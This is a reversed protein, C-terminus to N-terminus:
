YNSSDSNNTAGTLQIFRSKAQDFRTGTNIYEQKKQALQANLANIHRANDQYEGYLEGSTPIRNGSERLIDAHTALLPELRSKIGNIVLQILALNHARALDIEEPSTYTGLLANDYRQQTIKAELAKKAELSQATQAAREKDTLAAAKQGVVLGHKDITTTAYGADKAPQTNGYHWIGRADQWKYIDTTDTQGAHAM